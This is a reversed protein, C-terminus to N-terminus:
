FKRDVVKYVNTTQNKKGSKGYVDRNLRNYELMLKIQDSVMERSQELLTENQKKVLNVKNGASKIRAALEEFKAPWPPLFNEAMQAISMEAAERNDIAIESFLALRDKERKSNERGLTEIERVTKVFEAHDWKILFQKQRILASYIKELTGHMGELVNYIRQPLNALAQEKEKTEIM